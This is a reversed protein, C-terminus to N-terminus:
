LLSNVEVDLVEWWAPAFFFDSLFETFVTLEFVNSKFSFLVLWSIL